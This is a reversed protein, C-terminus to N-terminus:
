NLIEPPTPATTRRRTASRAKAAVAETTVKAQEILEEGKHRAEEILAQGKIKADEIVPSTTAAIKERNRWAIMGAVGVLAAGILLAPNRAAFRAAPRLVPLAAGAQKLRDRAAAFRRNELTSPIDTM